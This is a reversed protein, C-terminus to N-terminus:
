EKGEKLRQLAADLLTALDLAATELVPHEDGGHAWSVLRLRRVVIEAAEVVAELAEVHALLRPVHSNYADSSHDRRQLEQEIEAREAKTFSNM